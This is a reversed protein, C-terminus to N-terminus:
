KKHKSSVSALASGLPDSLAKILSTPLFNEPRFAWHIAIYCTNQLLLATLILFASRGGFLQNRQDGEIVFAMFCIAFNLTTLGFLARALM